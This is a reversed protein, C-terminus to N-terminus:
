SVDGDAAGLRRLTRIVRYVYSESVGLRERIQAPTAGAEALAIIRGKHGMDPMRSIHHSTGGISRRLREETGALADQLADPPVGTREISERVARLIISLVDAPM